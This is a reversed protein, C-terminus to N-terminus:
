RSALKKVNNAIDVSLGWTEIAAMGVWNVAIMAFPTALLMLVFSGGGAAAGTVLCALGAGFMAIVVLVTGATQIWTLQPVSSSETDFAGREGVERLMRSMIKLTHLPMTFFSVILVALGRVASSEGIARVSSQVSHRLAAGCSTCRLSDDANQTGCQSCFM